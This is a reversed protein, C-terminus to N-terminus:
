RINASAFGGSTDVHSLLLLLLLLESWRADYRIPFKQILFQHPTEVLGERDGAIIVFVSLEGQLAEFSVLKCIRMAESIM